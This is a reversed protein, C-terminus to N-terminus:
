AARTAMAVPLAYPSRQRRGALKRRLGGFVLAWGFWFLGSTPEPVFILQNVLAFNDLNYTQAGTGNRTVQVDVFTVNSLTNSFQAATGGFWGGQSYDLTVGVSYWSGVSTINLNIPLLALSFTSTGNGFRLTLDSPLVNAAYFDFRYGTFGPVTAWYNGTFAGTATGSNARWADTQPVPFVQAAFTGQDSGAPNGFGSNYSDTMKGPDRDVWGDLGSAFTDTYFVAGQAAAALCLVLAAAAQITGVVHRTPFIRM